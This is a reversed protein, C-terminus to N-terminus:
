LLRNEIHKRCLTVVEETKGGLLVYNKNQDYAWRSMMAASFGKEKSLEIPEKHFADWLVINGEHFSTAIHALGSDFGIYQDCAWIIAMTQRLSFHEYSLGLDKKESNPLGLQVYSFPYDSNILDKWFDFNWYVGEPSSTKGFPHIAIIPRKYSSLYDLAWAMEETTLFLQPTQSVPILKYAYCLNEVMHGVHSMNDREQIITKIASSDLENVDTISEIYPNAKWIPFHEDELDSVGVIPNLPATLIRLRRGVKRSLSEVLRSYVVVNGIGTGNPVALDCNFKTAIQKTLEFPAGITFRSQKM